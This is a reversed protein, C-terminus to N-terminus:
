FATDIKLKLYSYGIQGHEKYGGGVRNLQEETLEIKGDKTTFTLHDRRSSKQEYSMSREQNSCCACLIVHPRGVGSHREDCDIVELLSGM